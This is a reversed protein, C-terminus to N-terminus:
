EHRQAALLDTGAARRAPTYSALAVVLALPVRVSVERRRPLGREM